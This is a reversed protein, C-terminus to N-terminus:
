EYPLSAENEIYPADAGYSAAQKKKPYTYLGPEGCHFNLAKDVYVAGMDVLYFLVAGDVVPVSELDMKMHM